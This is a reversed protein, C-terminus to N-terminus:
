QSLLVIPGEAKPVGGKRERSVAFKAVAKVPQDPRFTLVARGDDTVTFVGGNVPDKYAPDIVWLQYDQDSALAPLKEVSLLGTERDPDWVAIARAEPSNGALSALANIKLRSLDEQRRLRNGLDAIAREALLSREKLRLEAMQRALDTVARELRLEEATRQLTVNQNALWASGLALVAALGWGIRALWPGSIVNAAPQRSNGSIAAALVRERLAAPPEIQPASLALVPAAARLREVLSRLEPHGAVAAEFAAKEAGDLLDLAHLAALEEHRETIM